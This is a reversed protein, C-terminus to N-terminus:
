LARGQVRFMGPYEPNLNPPKPNVAIFWELSRRKRGFTKRFFSM